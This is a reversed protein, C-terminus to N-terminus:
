NEREVLFPNIRLLKESTSMFYVTTDFFHSRYVVRHQNGREDELIVFHTGYKDTEDKELRVVLPYIGSQVDSSFDFIKKFINKAEKTEIPINKHVISNRFQVWDDLIRLTKNQMLYERNFEHKMRDIINEDKKIIDNLNRITGVLEGTTLKSFPKKIELKNTIVKKFDIKEDIWMFKSYFQIIDKLIRDTENSILRFDDATISNKDIVIKLNEQYKKLGDLKQPMEFGICSLICNIIEDESISKPPKQHFIKETLKLIDSYSFFKEIVKEPPNNVCYELLSVNIDLTDQEVGLEHSIVAKLDDHPVEKLLFDRLEEKPHYVDDKREFIGCSTVVLNGWRDVDPVQIFKEFSLKQITSLIQENEYNILIKQVFQEESEYTNELNLSEAVKRLDILNFDNLFDIIDGYERERECCSHLIGFPGLVMTKYLHVKSIKNASYLKKIANSILNDKVTFIVILCEKKTSGQLNLEKALALVQNKNLNSLLKFTDIKKFGEDVNQLNFLDLIKQKGITNIIENYTSRKTIKIEYKLELLLILTRKNTLSKILNILNEDEGLM